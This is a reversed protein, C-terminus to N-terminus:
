ILEAIKSGLIQFDVSGKIQEKITNIFDSQKIVELIENTKAYKDIHRSTSQQQAKQKKNAKKLNQKSKTMEKIYLEKRRWQEKEEENM